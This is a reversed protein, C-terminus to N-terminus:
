RPLQIKIEQNGGLVGERPLLLFFFADTRGGAGGGGGASPCFFLDLYIYIDHM